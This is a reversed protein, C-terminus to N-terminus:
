NFAIFHIFPSFQLFFQLWLSFIVASSFFNEAVAIGGDVHYHACNLM